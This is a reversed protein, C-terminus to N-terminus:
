FEVSALCSDALKLSSFRSSKIVQHNLSNYQLLCIVDGGALKLVICKTTSSRSRGQELWIM